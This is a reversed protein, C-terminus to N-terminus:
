PSIFVFVSGVSDMFRYVKKFEYKICITTGEEYWSLKGLM